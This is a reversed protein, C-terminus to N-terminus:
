IHRNPEYGQPVRWASRKVMNGTVLCERVEATLLCGQILDFLLLDELFSAVGKGALDVSTPEGPTVCVHEIGANMKGTNAVTKWDGVENLLLQLVDLLLGVTGHEGMFPIVTFCSPGYHKTGLRQSGYLHVM